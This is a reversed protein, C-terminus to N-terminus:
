KKTRTSSALVRESAVHLTTSLLTFGALLLAVFVTIMSPLEVIYQAVLALVLLIIALSIKLGLTVFYSLRKKSMHSPHVIKKVVPTIGKASRDVARITAHTATEPTKKILLLTIIVVCVVVVVLLPVRIYEPLSFDMTPASSATGMADIYGQLANSTVAWSVYLISAWLFQFLIGIYSLADFVRTVRSTVIKSM